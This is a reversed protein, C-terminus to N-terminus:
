TSRKMTQIPTGARGISCNGLPSGRSDLASGDRRRRLAPAAGPRRAPPLGLAVRAPPRRRRLLAAGRARRGRAERPRGSAARGDAGQAAAARARRALPGLFAAIAGRGEVKVLAEALSDYSPAVFYGNLCNMTVLLPQRPQALLAPADWSGLVSGAWIATGGHGVYGLVSIGSDLAEIVAGRTQAGLSRRFLQRPERGGYLAAIERVDQEFDGAVDPVDAVLVAEGDLGQGSGEWDLTKRV